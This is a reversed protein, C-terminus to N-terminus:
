GGSAGPLYLTPYLFLWIVDVLHWFLAVNGVLLTAAGDDRPRALSAYLLLGMGAVIHVAHLGTATFYLDMFLEVARSSFHAAGTAPMLGERYDAAYELGKVVLFGIGLLVAGALAGGCLRRQGTRAWEVALAACLSSTLLIATNATGLWLNLGASAHLYDRPHEARQVLFAAFIGGFLMIESALFLIMGLRDAERQRALNHFPEHLGREAM